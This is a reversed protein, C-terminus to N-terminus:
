EGGAYKELYNKADNNGMAAAKKFNELAKEKNGSLLYVWGKGYFYVGKETNLMIAHNIFDIAKQYQGIEGHSVGLQFYADSHEPDLEIVKQFYPIAAEDNGYVSLLIGKDYWYTTNKDQADAKKVTDAKAEQPKKNTDTVTKEIDTIHDPAKQQALLTCCAGSILTMCFFIVSVKLLSHKKKM